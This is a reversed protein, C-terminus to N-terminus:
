KETETQANFTEKRQFKRRKLCRANVLSVECISSISKKSTNNEKEDWNERV